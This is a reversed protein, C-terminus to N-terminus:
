NNLKCGMKGGRPNSDPAFAVAPGKSHGQAYPLPSVVFNSYFISQKLKSFM